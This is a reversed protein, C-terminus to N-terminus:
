AITIRILPDKKQGRNKDAIILVKESKKIKKIKLLYKIALDQNETTHKEWKDLKIGQIWYLIKMNEVTNKDASFAFVAQNPKYGATLKALNWSHTFIIVNKIDLEDALMLAHKVLYKKWVSIEDYKCIDIDTHPNKTHSEAETITKRMVNVSEVPYKWIATEDSLMTLDVGAIVSNYVDSVEARTPFPSDTMSKLLETAMICPKGYKRCIEILRSQEYPLETIPIEIGLDWRAVIVGDAVKVIEEFNDIGEQNEIKAIIMPQWQSRLTTIKGLFKRIELVTKADRVFSVAIFNMGNEMAFKLDSKDKATFAPLKLSIWPFNM